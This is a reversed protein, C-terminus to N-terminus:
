LKSRPPKNFIAVIMHNRKGPRHTVGIFPYSLMWLGPVLQFDHSSCLLTLLPHIRVGSIRRHGLRGSLSSSETYGISIHHPRNCALSGELPVTPVQCQDRDSGIEVSLLYRFSVSGMSSAGLLQHVGPLLCVGNRGLM